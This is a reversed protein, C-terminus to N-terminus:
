RIVSESVSVVQCLHVGNSVLPCLHVCTSVLPCLHVCTSMTPCYNVSTASRSIIKLRSPVQTELMFGVAFCLLSCQNFIERTGISTRSGWRLMCSSDARVRILVLPFEGGFPIRCILAALVTPNPDSEAFWPLCSLWSLLSQLMSM